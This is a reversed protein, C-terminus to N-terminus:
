SCAVRVAWADEPPPEAGVVDTTFRVQGRLTDGQVELLFVPGSLGDRWSVKVTDSGGVQWYSFDRWRRRSRPDVEMTPVLLQRGPPDLGRGSRFHFREEAFRVVASSDVFSREGGPARHVWHFYQRDFRFCRTALSDLQANAADAGLVTVALSILATCTLAESTRPLNPMRRVRKRLFEM